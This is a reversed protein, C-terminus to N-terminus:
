RSLVQNHIKMAAMIGDGIAITAQRYFGNKVDGVLFCRDNADFQEMFDLQPDRGIALVVKHCELSIKKKGDVLGEVLLLRDNNIINVKKIGEVETNDLYVINNDAFARDVLLQLSRINSGRNIISVRNKRSLYLAHDFAADGAGIIVIHKGNIDLLRRIDHHVCNAVAYDLNINITKPKTGSSVVVFDSKLEGKDSELRFLENKYSLRTIELYEIEIKLRDLQKQIREILEIGSIGDPFGPYNEVLNANRLLGGLLEKEFLLPTYGLRKLQISTAIGAPGAGIIAIRLNNM